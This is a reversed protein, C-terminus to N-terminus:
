GIMGNAGWGSSESGENLVDFITSYKSGCGYFLVNLKCSAVTGDACRKPIYLFGNIDLNARWFDEETTFARQDFRMYYGETMYTLDSYPAITVDSEASLKGSNTMRPWIWKYWYQPDDYSTTHPKGM